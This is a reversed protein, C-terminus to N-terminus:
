LTELFEELSMAELLEKLPDDALRDGKLDAMAKPHIMESLSADNKNQLWATMAAVPVRIEDLENWMADAAHKANGSALHPAVFFRDLIVSLPTYAEREILRELKQRYATEYLGPSMEGKVLAPDLLVGYRRCLDPDSRLPEPVWPVWQISDEEESGGADPKLPGPAPGQAPYEPLVAIREGPRLPVFRGDPTEYGVEHHGCTPCKRSTVVGVTMNYQQTDSM